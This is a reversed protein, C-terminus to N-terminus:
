RSNRFQKHYRVVSSYAIKKAQAVAQRAATLQKGSAIKTEVMKGVSFYRREEEPQATRGVKKPTQKASTLALMRLNALETEREARKQARGCRTSCFKQNQKSARFARGCLRNLCKNDPRKERRRVWRLHDFVKRTCKYSCYKQRNDSTQFRPHPCDPNACVRWKKPHKRLWFARTLCKQSCYRKRGHVSNSCEPNACIRPQEPGQERNSYTEM